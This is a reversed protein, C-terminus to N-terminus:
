DHPKKSTRVIAITASRWFKAHFRVLSSQLYELTQASAGQEGVLCDAMLQPLGEIACRRCCPVEANWYGTATMEKCFICVEIDAGWIDRTYCAEEAYEQTVPDLSPSTDGKRHNWIIAV